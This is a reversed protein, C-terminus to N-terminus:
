PALFNERALERWAADWTFRQEYICRGAHALQAAASGKQLLMAVSNSFDEPTDANCYHTGPTVDLGEAGLSTSVVPLGAAWAELIKVRTGSGSLVPVVAIKSQALAPIANDVPGTLHVGDLGQVLAAVGHPNKGLIRWQLSPFRHHLRPWVFRSFWAVAQQNPHYELNGSFVISDIPRDVEPLPVTPIANPFVLSRYGNMMAAERASSVLLADFKPLHGAEAARYLNAFRHHGVSEPWSSQLGLRQHWESEINHLDLYIRNAHSQLLPRYPASWFHELIAADYHRNKLFAALASECGSFRDLLPPVGRLLRSTNRLVRPVIHKSHAPLRLAFIQRVLGPPISATPDSAGEVAFLVLDVDAHAAAYQLLSATRLAGGGNLPYPPEPSLFLVQQKAM